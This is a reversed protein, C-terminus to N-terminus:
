GGHGESGSRGQGGSLRGSGPGPAVARQGQVRVPLSCLSAATCPWPLNGPRHPLCPRPKQLVLCDQKKRQGRGSALGKEAGGRGGAVAGDEFGWHCLGEEVMTRSPPASPLSLPLRPSLCVRGKEEGRSILGSTNRVHSLCPKIHIGSSSLFNYKNQGSRMEAFVQLLHPHVVHSRPPTGPSPAAPSISQTGPGGGRDGGNM